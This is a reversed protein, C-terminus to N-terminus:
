TKRLSIAYDRSIHVPENRAVKDEFKGFMVEQEDKFEKKGGESSLGYAVITRRLQFKINDVMKDCKSNNITLRIM